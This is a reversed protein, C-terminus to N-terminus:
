YKYEVTVNAIVTLSGGQISTGSDAEDSMMNMAKANAMPEYKAKYSSSEIVRYPKGAKAGFTEMIANAKSDASKMAQKLAENYLEDKNEIDFTIGGAINAGASIGKDLVEGAKSIDKVKINISNRIVYGTFVETDNKWEYDENITYNATQIYKDEIGLAKIEGIVKEMVKANEAQAKKIDKNVTKVALNINAVNPEATIVGKGNVSVINGEEGSTVNASIYDKDMNRYVMFGGIVILTALVLVSLKKISITM